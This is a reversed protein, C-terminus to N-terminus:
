EGGHEAASGGRCDNALCTSLHWASPLFGGGSLWHHLALAAEALDRAAGADITTEPQVRADDADQVAHAADLLAVLTADPDM